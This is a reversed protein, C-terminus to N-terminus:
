RSGVLDDSLLERSVSIKPGYSVAEGLVQILATGNQRGLLMVKVAGDVEHDGPPDAPRVLSADVYFALPEAVGDADILV